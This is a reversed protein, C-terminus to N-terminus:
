SILFPKVIYLLRLVGSWAWDPYCTSIISSWIVDLPILHMIPMSTIQVQWRKCIQARVGYYRVFHGLLQLPFPWCHITPRVISDRKEKLSSLWIMWRIGWGELWGLLYNLGSGDPSSIGLYAKRTGIIVATSGPSAQTPCCQAVNSGSIWPHRNDLNQPLSFTISVM